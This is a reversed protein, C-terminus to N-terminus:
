SVNINFPLLSKAILLFPKLLLYFLLGFVAMGFITYVVETFMMMTTMYMMRWAINLFYYCRELCEMQAGGSHRRLAEYLLVKLASFGNATANNTPACYIRLISTANSVKTPKVIIQRRDSEFLM